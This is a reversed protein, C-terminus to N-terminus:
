LHFSVNLTGQASETTDLFGFLQTPIKSKFRITGTVIQKGKPNPTNNNNISNNNINGQTWIVDNLLLVVYTNLATTVVVFETLNINGATVTHAWRSNASVDWMGLLNKAVIWTYHDTLVSASNGCTFDLNFVREFDANKANNHEEIIAADQNEEPLQDCGLGYVQCMCEAQTYGQDLCEQVLDVAPDVCYALECEVSVLQTIQCYDPNFGENVNWGGSCQYEFVTHINYYCNPQIDIANDCLNGSSNTASAAREEDTVLKTHLTIGKPKGAGLHWGTKMNNDYDYL